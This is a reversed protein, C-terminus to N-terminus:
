RDNPREDNPREDDPREDSSPKDIPPPPLDVHQDVEVQFRRFKGYTATAEIRRWYESPPM